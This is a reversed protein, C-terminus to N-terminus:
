GGLLGGLPLTSTTTEVVPVVTDVVPVVTDVVPVVTDVAPEIVPELPLSTEVIDVVPDVAGLVPEVVEDLPLATDVTDVVPDLLGIVPDITEVVPTLVDLVPDVTDLVPDLVPDVVEVAPDLVPDLVGIVPDVVALVPDLVPDVVPEVVPALVPDLVESVPEVVPGVVPVVTDVIPEVVPGLEPVVVPAQDIGPLLPEGSLDPLPADVVPLPVLPGVLVPGTVAPEMVVPTEVAPVPELGTPPGVVPEVASPASVIPESVVPELGTPPGAVVPAEASAARLGALPLSVEAPASVGLALPGSGGPGGLAPAGGPVAGLGTVAIVAAGAAGAAAPGAAAGASAGLRGAEALMRLFPVQLAFSVPGMAWLLRPLPVALFARVCVPDFHTGSCAALEARAAATAMAKKYTRAATMTEFADVLGVMRGARSIAAGALGAPYGTGDYKEHHEAIGLGWEGLWPLLPAALEAGVSPHAKVADFEGATLRSPKNLVATPVDLKGLDHLLAAWRLRDRDADGLRMEIALLDTLVRVRECHGRTRRDHAGLAGILRLVQEATGSPTQELREQSRLVADRAVQYRSPAAGPFLLDLRLLVPLPTLRRLAREVAVGTVVAASMALALWAWAPDPQAPALRDVALVALGSAALPILVLALRVAGALVPRARWRSDGDETM